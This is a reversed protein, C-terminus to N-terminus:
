SAVVFFLYGVGFRCTSPLSFLFLRQVIPLFILFTSGVLSSVALNRLFKNGQLKVPSVLLVVKTLYEYM